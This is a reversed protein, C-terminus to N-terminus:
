KPVPSPPPRDFPSGTTDVLAYGVVPSIVTTPSSQYQPSSPKHSVPEVPSQAVFGPPRHTGDSYLQSGEADFVGTPTAMLFEASLADLEAQRDRVEQSTVSSADHRSRSRDDHLAQPAISATQQKGLNAVSPNPATTLLQPNPMPDLKPVAGIGMPRFVGDSYLEEGHANFVGTPTASLFEGSMMNLQEQRNRMEETNASSISYGSRSRDDRLGPPPPVANKALTNRRLEAAFDQTSQEAATLGEASAPNLGDGSFPM